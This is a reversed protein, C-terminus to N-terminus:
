EPVVLYRLEDSELDLIAVSYEDARYLAGPNIWRVAGERADVPYHRHGFLLYDPQCALVRRVDIHMHGHTIGVCKGGINVVAGWELCSIGTEVAAQRLEPVRDADHNGFVFYSPLVHCAVVIEPGSLDGCHVLAEAGAGRLLEIARQTRSLEDHTDALIGIRM